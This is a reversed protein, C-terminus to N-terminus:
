TSRGSYPMQGATRPVCTKTLWFPHGGISLQDVTGTNSFNNHGRESFLAGLASGELTIPPSAIGATSVSRVKARFKLIKTEAYRGDGTM